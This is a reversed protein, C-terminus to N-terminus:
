AEEFSFFSLFFFHEREGAKENEREHISHRWNAFSFNEPREREFYNKWWIIPRRERVLMWVFIFSFVFNNLGGRRFL